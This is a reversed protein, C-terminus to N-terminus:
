LNDQKFTLFFALIDLITMALALMIEIYVM